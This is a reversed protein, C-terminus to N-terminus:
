HTFFRVMDLVDHDLLVDSKKLKGMLLLFESRDKNIYYYRLAAKYSGLENGNNILAKEVWVKAKDNKEIDLLSCVLKNYLEGSIESPLYEEMAIILEQFLDCYFVQEATSLIKQSLFDNLYDTYKDCLERNGKDKNYKDRLQKERIKFESISDSIAAAAYHSVESDSHEVGNLITKLSGNSDERIVDLLLKRTSKKDSVIFAEELPVKNLARSMDPKLIVEIKEKRFSLEEISIDLARRKFYIEYLAWSLFLYLPGVIPCMIMFISMIIGGNLDKKVWKIFLYILAIIFNIVLMYIIIEMKNIKM